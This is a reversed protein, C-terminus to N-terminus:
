IFFAASITPRLMLEKESANIAAKEFDTMICSPELRFGNEEAIDFIESFVRTYSDESRSTMFIYVCPFTMRHDGSFLVAHISYIQEYDKPVAKFTGDM